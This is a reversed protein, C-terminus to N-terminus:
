YSYAAVSSYYVTTHRFLLQNLTMQLFANQRNNLCRFLSVSYYCIQVLRHLLKLLIRIIRVVPVDYNCTISKLVSFVYVIIYHIIDSSLVFAVNLYQTPIFYCVVCLFQTLTSEFCFLFENFSLLQQPMVAVPILRRNQRCSERTDNELCFYIFGSATYETSVYYCVHSVSLVIFDSNCFNPSLYNTSKCM